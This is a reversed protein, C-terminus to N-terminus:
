LIVCCVACCHARPVPIMNKIESYTLGLAKKGNIKCDPTPHGSFEVECSKHSDDIYRMYLDITGNKHTMERLSTIVITKGEQDLIDSIKKYDGDVKLFLHEDLTEPTCLAFIPDNGSRNPHLVHYYKRKSTHNKCVSIFGHKNYILYSFEVNVRQEDFDLLAKKDQFTELVFNQMTQLNQELELDSFVLESLGEETSSQTTSRSESSLDSDEEMSYALSVFASVLFIFSKNM